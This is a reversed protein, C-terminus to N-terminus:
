FDYNLLRITDHWRKAVEDRSAQSYYQRYHGPPRRHNKDAPLAAPKLQLRQCLESLREELEEYRFVADVAVKRGMSYLSSNQRIPYTFVFEDFDVAQLRGKCRHHFYLSVAFDWPNRDFCFKFYTNVLDGGLVQELDAIGAHDAFTARKLFRRKGLLRRLVSSSSALRNVPWATYYNNGETVPNSLPTWIDDPCLSAHLFREVSTSATKRCKIFIFQRSHSVIM